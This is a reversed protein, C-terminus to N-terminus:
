PQDGTPEDPPRDPNRSEGEATTESDDAPPVSRQQEAHAEDPQGSEVTRPGSTAPGIAADSADASERTSGEDAAAREVRESPELDATAGDDLSGVDSGTRFEFRAGGDASTTVSLLWGHGRAIDNVIALGLGTGEDSTTFGHNTVSARRDTPIGPGDDAVFFGERDALSGVRVTVGRGGHEVSNRFLNEFVTLLRGRDAEIACDTELELSAEGTEVNSWASRAVAPVYVTEPDTIAKGQRALELADEIISEMRDHADAISRITESDVAGDPQEAAEFALEANANAVSLPNRLDHSVLSVFQDLRENQLELKATQAELEATQRELETERRRLAQERGRRETVDVLLNVYGVVEGTVRDIPSITVDYYREGNDTEVWLEDDMPGLAREGRLMALIPGGDLIRDLKAIERLHQGVADEAGLMVRATRNIDVVRGDADMTVIGGDITEVASSRGLLVIDGFRWQWWSRVRDIPVMRRFRSSVSVGVLVLGVVLYGLPVLVFHPTPALGLGSPVTLGTLVATALLLVYSQKRYVGRSRRSKRFLLGTYVIATGWFSALLCVFGPGPEYTLLRYTGVTEIRQDALVLGHVPDTAAFLGVAVPFAGLTALVSPGLLDERGTYSLTFGLMTTVTTAIVTLIAAVGAHTLGVPEVSLTVLHTAAWATLSLQVGVAWTDTAHDRHRWVAATSVLGVLTALALPVTYPTYQWM